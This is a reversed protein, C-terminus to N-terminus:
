IKKETAPKEDKDKTTSKEGSHGLLIVLGVASPIMKGVMENFTIDGMLWVVIGAFITAAALYISTRMLISGFFEGKANTSEGESGFTRVNKKIFEFFKKM